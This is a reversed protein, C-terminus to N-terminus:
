DAAFLIILATIVAAISFTSGMVSMFPGKSSAFNSIIFNYIAITGFFGLIIKFIAGDHFLLWLGGVILLLLIM